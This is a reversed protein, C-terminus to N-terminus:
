QLVRAAVAVVQQFCPVARRFREQLDCLLLLSSAPALRGLRPGAM